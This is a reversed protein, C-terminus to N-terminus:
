SSEIALQNEHLTHGECEVLDKINYSHTGCTDCQFGTFEWEGYNLATEINDIDYSFDGSLCEEPPTNFSVEGWGYEIREHTTFISTKANAGCCTTTLKKAEM